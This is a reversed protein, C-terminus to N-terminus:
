PVRVHDAVTPLRTGPELLDLRATAVLGAAYPHRPDTFVQEATGREVVRRRADRRRRLV